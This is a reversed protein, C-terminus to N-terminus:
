RAKEAFIQESKVDKPWFCCAYVPKFEDRVDIIIICVKDGMLDNGHPRSM